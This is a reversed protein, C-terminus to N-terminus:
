DFVERLTRADQWARTDAWLYVPTLPRRDADLGIVSPAFTDVAVAAVEVGNVELRPHLRDLAEGVRALLQTPDLEVTGDDASQVAYEVREALEEIARGLRDFVVARLSSTGVDLALVLPPEATTLTINAM